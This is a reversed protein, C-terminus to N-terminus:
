DGHNQDGFASFSEAFADQPLFLDAPMVIDAVLDSAYNCLFHFKIYNNM